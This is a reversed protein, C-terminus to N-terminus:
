VTNPNMGPVVIFDITEDKYGKRRGRATYAGPALKITKEQFQSPPFQNAISVWTKGDSRLTVAVLAPVAQEGAPKEKAAPAQGFLPCITFACIALLTILLRHIM